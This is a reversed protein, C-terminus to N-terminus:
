SFLLKDKEEESIPLVKVVEKLQEQWGDGCFVRIKKILREVEKRQIEELVPKLKEAITYFEEKKIEKGLFNSLMPHNFIIYGNSISVLGAKALCVLMYEIAQDHKIPILKGARVAENIRRIREVALDIIAHCKRTSKSFMAKIKKALAMTYPPMEELMIKGDKAIKWLETESKKNIGRVFLFLVACWKDAEDKLPYAGEDFVRFYAERLELAKLEDEDREGYLNKLIAVRGRGFEVEKVISFIKRLADNPLLDEADHGEEIDILDCAKDEEGLYYLVLALYENLRKDEYEENAEELVEKAKTLYEEKDLKEFLRIYTAAANLYTDLTKDKEELALEYYFEADEDNGQFTLCMGARDWVSGEQLM